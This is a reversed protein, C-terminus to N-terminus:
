SRCALDEEEPLSGRYRHALLSPTCGSVIMLLFVLLM